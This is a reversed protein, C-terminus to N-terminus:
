AEERRPDLARWNRDEADAPEAAFLSVASASRWGQEGADLVEADEGFAMWTAIVDNAELGPARCREIQDRVYRQAFTNAHAM